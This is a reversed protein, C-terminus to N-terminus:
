KGPPKTQSLHSPSGQPWGVQDYFVHLIVTDGDEVISMGGRPRLHRNKLFFDEMAKSLTVGIGPPAPRVAPYFMVGGGKDQTIIDIKPEGNGPTHKKPV